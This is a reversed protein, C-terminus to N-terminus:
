AEGVEHVIIGGSYTDRLAVRKLQIGCLPHPVHRKTFEFRDRLHQVCIAISVVDELTAQKNMGDV